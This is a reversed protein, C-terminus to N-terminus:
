DKLQPVRGARRALFVVLALAVVGGVGGIVLWPPGEAPPPPPAVAVAPGADVSEVAAVPAGADVPAAAVPEPAGADVPAEAVAGAVEPAPKSGGLKALRAEEALRKQEEAAALKAAKAEEAKRKKEEAAALKAAKAEEAKRKKEEAAAAKAAMAEEAKRQKEEAAAAKAEEAKRQKEEAAAAKAEEAKRQKEEVAAKAPDVAAVVVAGADVPEPVVPKPKPAEPMTGDDLKAIMVPLSPFTLRIRKGVDPQKADRVATVAVKVELGAAVDFTVEGAVKWRHDGEDSVLPSATNHITARATVKHKGPSVDVAGVPMPGDELWRSIADSTPAKLPRGDVALELEEVRFNPDDVPQFEVRVRCPAREVMQNLQRELEERARKQAPDEALAVGGVMAVLLAILRMRPGGISSGHGNTGGLYGVM